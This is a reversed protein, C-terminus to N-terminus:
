STITHVIHVDCYCLLVEERVVKVLTVLTGVTVTVVPPMSRVPTTSVVRIQRSM